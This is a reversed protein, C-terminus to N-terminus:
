PRMYVPRNGDDMYEDTVYEGKNKVTDPIQFDVLKRCNLFAGDAISEVSAPIEISTLNICGQFAYAGISTVSDPINISTLSANGAFAYDGIRVVNDPIVSNQCGVVLTSDAVTIICNGESRYIPNKKEVTISALSSCGIFAGSEINVVSKPIKLGQLSSCYLFARKSITKLTKPLTVKTVTDQGRFVNEAIGEVKRVRYLPHKYKSPIVVENSRGLYNRVEVAESGYILEFSFDPPEQKIACGMKVFM